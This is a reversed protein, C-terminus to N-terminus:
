QQKYLHFNIGCFILIGPMPYGNNIQYSQNTLNEGKVFVDFLYNIKYGAKANVLFYSSKLVVPQVQKILGSISQLNVNLVWKKSLFNGSAGLQHKPVALAPNKLATYGYVLALKVQQSLWYKGSFEIGTNNFVGTNVNKPGGNQFVTQILNDGQVNFVTAELMIKHNILQQSITFEINRMKEPQLDPNAPAFLYLDLMTPSRFGKSVSAKVTSNNNVLYSAGGSPVMFNGYVSNHQMRLGASLIVKKAITQQSLLYPAWETITRDGLVIGQGNMAFVNEAKGGYNSFDFGVTTVNNPFQRFAQYVNAGYNADKSKFGDTINHKGYNYFLQLSGSSKKYNNSLFLYTSGRFIDILAGPRGNEPGPDAAKFKALNTEAGMKFHTSLVYNMKLYGNVINFDSAPRHGDTRDKNFSAMASFRKKRYGINFRYKQTNFSGGLISANFSYGDQQQNRTIINIVGGMANTGYLVSGAGHIVEVKEVGSAVYSDALPHGFIGMFQPSGNVLVLVRNNPNGSLGRMSIAGASGTSVGFGTIGRETVFLGPVHEALVPLLASESSSEIQERNVVTVNFPVYNKSVAIKTGTVVVEDLSEAAQNLIIELITVPLKTKVSVIATDYGVASVALRYDGKPLKFSFQGKGNTEEFKSSNLVQLKAFAIGKGSLSKVFGKVTQAFASTSFFLCFLIPCFKLIM